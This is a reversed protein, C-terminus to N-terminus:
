TMVFTLDSDFDDDGPLRSLDLLAGLVRKNQCMVLGGALARTTAAADSSVEIALECELACPPELQTADECKKFKM